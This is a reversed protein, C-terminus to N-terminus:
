VTHGSHELLGDGAGRGAGSRVEAGDSIAGHDQQCPSACKSAAFNGREDDVVHRVAPLGTAGHHEDRDAAALGVLLTFALHLDDRAGRCVRLAIRDCGHLCPRLQRADSGTREETRDVPMALDCLVSQLTLINGVNHPTGDVGGSEIRADRSVTEACAEDSGARDSACGGGSEASLGTM